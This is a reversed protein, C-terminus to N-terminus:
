QLEMMSANLEALPTKIASAVAQAFRADTEPWEVHHDRVRVKHFLIMCGNHIGGIDPADARFQSSLAEANSNIARTISQRASEAGDPVCDGDDFGHKLMMQIFANHLNYSEYELIGLKAPVLRIIKTKTM